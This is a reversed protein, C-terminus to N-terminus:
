RLYVTQKHKSNYLAVIQRGEQRSRKIAEEQAEKLDKRSMTIDLYYSRSTPHIWTGLWSEAELLQPRNRQIFTRLEAVLDADSPLIITRGPYRPMSWVDVPGSLHYTNLKSSSGGNELTAIAVELLYKEFYYAELTTNSQSM